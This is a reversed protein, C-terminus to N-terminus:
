FLHLVSVLLFPGSLGPPASVGFASTVRDVVNMGVVGRERKCVPLCLAWIGSLLCSDM